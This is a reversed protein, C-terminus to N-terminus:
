VDVALRRRVAPSDTRQARLVVVKSILLVRPRYRLFIFDYYRQSRFVDILGRPGPRAIILAAIDLAVGGAYLGHLHVAAPVLFADEREVASLYVELLLAHVDDAMFVACGFFHHHSLVGTLMRLTCSFVRYLFDLVNIKYYQCVSRTVGKFYAM